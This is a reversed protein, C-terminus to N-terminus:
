KGGAAGRPECGEWTCLISVQYVDSGVYTSDTDDGGDWRGRILCVADGKVLACQTGYPGDAAQRLDQQWGEAALATLLRDIPNPQDGLEKWSGSAVVLCGPREIRRVEDPFTGSISETLTGPTSSVITVVRQCLPHDGGDEPVAWASGGSLIALLVIALAFRM